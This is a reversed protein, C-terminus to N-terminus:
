FISYYINTLLNMNKLGHCHGFFAKLSVKAYTWFSFYIPILIKISSFINKLKVHLVVYRGPEILWDLMDSRQLGGLLDIM